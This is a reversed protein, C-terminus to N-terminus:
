TQATPPHDFEEWVFTAILDQTAVATHPCANDHLMMDDRTLTGRRKNQIARRLKKLADRYVGENITSGQPLFEVLLFRRKDWFMHVDDKSNFHDTKSIDKNANIHRWELSQHKSEPTV